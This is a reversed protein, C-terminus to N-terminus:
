LNRCPHSLNEYCKRMYKKPDGATRTAHFWKGYLHQMQGTNLTRLEKTTLVQAILECVEKAKELDITHIFDNDKSLTDFIIKQKLTYSKSNIDEKDEEINIKVKIKNFTQNDNSKTKIQGNASKSKSTDINPKIACFISEKIGAFSPEKNEFAYECMGIFVDAIVENRQEKTLIEDDRIASISKYYSKYLTFGNM